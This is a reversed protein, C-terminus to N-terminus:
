RPPWLKGVTPLASTFLRMTPYWSTDNRDHMWRWCSDFRNLLWVPRGLAGAAHVVSTDVSIVLDLATMLAATDAYDHLDATWDVIPWGSTQIAAQGKQLSVFTITPIALLPALRHLAM